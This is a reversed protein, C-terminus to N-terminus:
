DGCGYALHHFGKKLFVANVGARFVGAPGFVAEM